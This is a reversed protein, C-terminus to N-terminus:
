SGPEEVNPKAGEMEDNEALHGVAGGIAAGAVAVGCYELLRIVPEVKRMGKGMIPPIVADVLAFLTIGTFFGAVAGSSEKDSMKVNINLKTKRGKYNLKIEVSM